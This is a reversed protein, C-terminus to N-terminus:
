QIKGRRRLEQLAEERSPRVTVRMPSSTNGSSPAAYSPGASKGMSQAATQRNIAKQRLVVESDGPQPFYQKNANDFETDAIVAGSERRLQANIFDRKAQDLMQYEDSVLYNGVLPIGAKFKQGLDTGVSQYKDIVPASERMRDSFGGAKLESETAEIRSKQYASSLDQQLKRNGSAAKMQALYNKEFDDGYMMGQSPLNSGPPVGGTTQMSPQGQQIPQIGPIGIKDSIRPKQILGGNVPDFQIGGSKADVYKAAALEQPTLQEGMAAKMFAIEGLKDVDLQQAKKIEAAALQKKLDFEAQLAQQDLLTKERGFVSLDSQGM